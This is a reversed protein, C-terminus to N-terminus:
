SNSNNTGDILLDLNETISGPGEHMAHVILDAAREPNGDAVAAKIEKGRDEFYGM